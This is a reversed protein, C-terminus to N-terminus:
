VHGHRRVTEVVDCRASASLSILCLVSQLSLNHSKSKLTQYLPSLPSESLDCHADEEPQPEVLDVPLDFRNYGLFDLEVGLCNHLVYVGGKSPWGYIDVGPGSGYSFRYRKEPGYHCVSDVKETMTEQIFPQDPLNDTTPLQVRFPSFFTLAARLGPFLVALAIWYVLM